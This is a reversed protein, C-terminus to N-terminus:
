SLCSRRVGDDDVCRLERIQAPLHVGDPSRLRDDLEREVARDELGVLVEQARHAVRELLDAPLM